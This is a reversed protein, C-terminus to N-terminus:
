ATTIMYDNYNYFCYAGDWGSISSFDKQIASGQYHVTGNDQLGGGFDVRASDPHLNCTYFQLMCSMHLQYNLLKQLSCLLCILLM